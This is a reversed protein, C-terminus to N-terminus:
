GLGSTSTETINRRRTVIMHPHSSSRSSSWTAPSLSWPSGSAPSPAESANGAHSPAPTAGHKATTMDYDTSSEQPYMAHAHHNYKRAWPDKAPQGAAAALKRPDFGTLNTPNRGSMITSTSTALRLHLVPVYSFPGTGELNVSQSTVNEPCHSSKALEALSSTVERKQSLMRVNSCM